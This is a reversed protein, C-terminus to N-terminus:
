PTYPRLSTSPHLSSPAQKQPLNPQGDSALFSGILLVPLILAALTVIASPPEPQAGHRNDGRTGPIFWFLLNVFPVLLLLALWGGFGFDHARRITLVTFLFPLFGYFLLVSVVTYLIRASGGSWLLLYGAMLMFLFTAVLSGLTYVIYRARDLRGRLSFMGVRKAPPTDYLSMATMTRDM